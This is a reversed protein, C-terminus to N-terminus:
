KPWGDFSAKLGDFIVGDKELLEKNTYHSLDKIWKAWKRKNVEAISTIDEETYRAGAEPGWYSRARHPYFGGPNKNSNGCYFHRNDWRVAAIGGDPDNTLVYYSVGSDSQADYLDEPMVNVLCTVGQNHSSLQGRWWKDAIRHIVNNRTDQRIKGNGIEFELYQGFEIIQKASYQADKSVKTEM